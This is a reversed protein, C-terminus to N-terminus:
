GLEFMEVIFMGVGLILVYFLVVFYVMGDLLLEVGICEILFFNEWYEIMYEGGLFEYGVLVKIDKEDLLWKEDM